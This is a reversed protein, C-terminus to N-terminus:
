GRAQSSGYTKPAAGSFAFLCFIKFFLKKLYISFSALSRPFLICLDASWRFIGGWLYRRSGEPLAPPFFVVVFVFGESLSEAQIRM